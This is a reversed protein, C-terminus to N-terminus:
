HTRSHQVEETGGAVECHYKQLKRRLNAAPGRTRRNDPPNKEGLCLSDRSQTHRHTNQTPPDFSVTQIVRQKFAASEGDLYDTQFLLGALGSGPPPAIQTLISFSASPFLHVPRTLGCVFSSVLPHLSGRTLQMELQVERLRCPWHQLACM